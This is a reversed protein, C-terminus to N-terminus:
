KKITLDIIKQFDTLSIQKCNVFIYNLIYILKDKKSYYAYRNVFPKGYFGQIYFFDKQPSILSTTPKSFDILLKYLKDLEYKFSVGIFVLCSDSEFCRNLPVEMTDAFLKTYAKYFIPTIKKEVEKQLPKYKQSKGFRFSTTQSNSTISIFIIFVFLLIKKNM